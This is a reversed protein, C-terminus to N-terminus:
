DLLEMAKKLCEKCVSITTGQNNKNMFAITKTEKGCVLCKTPENNFLEIRGEKQPNPRFSEIKLEKMQEGLHKDWRAITKKDM